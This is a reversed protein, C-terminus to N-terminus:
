ITPANLVEVDIVSELADLWKRNGDCRIRAQALVKDIQSM